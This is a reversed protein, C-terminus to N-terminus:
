NMSSRLLRQNISNATQKTRVLQALRQVIAEEVETNSETQLQAVVDQAAARLQGAISKTVKTGLKVPSLTSEPTPSSSMMGGVINVPVAGGKLMIEFPSKSGSRSAGQAQFVGGHKAQVAKRSIEGGKHEAEALQQLFNTDGMAKDLVKQSMGASGHAVNLAVYNLATKSDPMSNLIGIGKEIKGGGFSQALYALTAQAAVAPDKLILDPDSVLDKGIAKGVAAYTAKGTIQVFGRGRYKYGDGPKDNGLEKGKPGLHGYAMDFFFENGSSLAKKLAADDRYMGDNITKLQPFVERMYEYGNLGTKERKTGKAYTYQTKTNNITNLWTNAGKESSSATIGSEKASVKLIAEQAFKNTLGLLKFEKVANIARDLMSEEKKEAPKETPASPRATEGGPPLPLPVPKPKEVPPPIPKTPPQEAPKAPPQEAPKAPPQEAPKAPPTTSPKAPPTTPKETPKKKVEEQQRKTEQQQKEYAARAKAEDDKKKEHAAKAAAAADQQRKLEDQQQKDEDAAAKAKSQKSVNVSNSIIGTAKDSGQAVTNMASTVAPVAAQVGKQADLMARQQKVRMESAQQQLKDAAQGTEAGQKKGEEGAAQYAKTIDRDADLRAKNVANQSGFLEENRDLKGLHVGITDYTTSVKSSVQQVAQDATIVGKATKEIIDIGEGMTARAFQQSKETDLNGTISHRYMEALEPNTASLAANLARLRDAGAKDGDLEMRRLKAEYRTEAQAARFNEEMEKRSAGTVKSLKDQEILYDKAGEAIEAATKGRIRNSRTLQGVYELVADNQEEQSININQLQLRYPEMSKTIDEFQERGKGVSGSMMALDKSHASLQSVYKDIDKVGIGVKQAGEFVGTLGKSTAAGIQSMKQYGKFEADAQEAVTKSLETLKGIIKLAIGTVIGLPGGMTILMDGASNAAKAVGDAAGAFADAGQAGKYASAITSGVADKLGGLAGIAQQTALTSNKIGTNLDQMKRETDPMIRGFEALDRNIQEQLKANEDQM